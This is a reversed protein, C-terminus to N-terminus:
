EKNHVWVMTEPNNTFLKDIFFEDVARVVGSWGPHYDHGSIVGGIKVKPYWLNIDNKVNEYDHAADIFVFDLTENDYLKSAEESSLRHYNIINKIPEINVLFKTFAEEYDFNDNKNKWSDVCDFKIKKGSNIIEVGMYVASKGQWSGVEVFHSNQPFKKVMEAYFKPHGFWGHVKEYYHEM